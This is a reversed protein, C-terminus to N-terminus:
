ASFVQRFASFAAHPSITKSISIVIDPLMLLVTASHKYTASDVSVPQKEKPLV